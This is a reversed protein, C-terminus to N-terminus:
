AIVGDIKKHQHEKTPKCNGYFDYKLEVNRYCLLTVPNKKFVVKGCMILRELEKTPINFNGTTQSYPICEIGEQSANVAFQTANYKDYYVASIECFYSKLDNL